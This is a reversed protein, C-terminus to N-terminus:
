EPRRRSDRRAVWARCVAEGIPVHSEAECAYPGDLLTLGDIYATGDGLTVLDFAEAEALEALLPGWLRPDTCFPDAGVRGFYDAIRANIDFRDMASTPKM